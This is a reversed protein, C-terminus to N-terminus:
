YIYYNMKIFYKLLFVLVKIKDKGMYKLMDAVAGKFNKAKEGPIMGPPGGPGRRRATVKKLDERSESM